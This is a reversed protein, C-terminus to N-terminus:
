SRPLHQIELKLHSAVLLELIKHTQGGSDSFNEEYSPSLKSFSCIFFRLRLLPLKGLVFRARLGGLEATKWCLIEIIFAEAPSLLRYLNLLFCNQSSDVEDAMGADANNLLCGDSAQCDYPPYNLDPFFLPSLSLFPEAPLPCSPVGLHWM